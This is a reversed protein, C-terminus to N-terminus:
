MNKMLKLKEIEFKLQENKLELERNRLELEKNKSNQLALEMQKDTLGVYTETANNPDESDILTIKEPKEQSKPEDFLSPEKENKIEVDVIDASKDFDQEKEGIIIETETHKGDTVNTIQKVEHTNINNSIENFGSYTAEQTTEKTIEYNKFDFNLTITQRLTELESWSGKGVIDPNALYSDDLYSIDDDVLYKIDEKSEMDSIKILVEKEVLGKFARYLATRSLIKGDEIRKKFSKDFMFVNKYNLGKLVRFFLIKEANDLRVIYDINDVFIKVFGAKNKEKAIVINKREQIEGTEHNEISQEKRYIVQHKGSLKNLDKIAVNTNEM